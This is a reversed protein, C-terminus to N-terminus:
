RLILEHEAGEHYLLHRTRGATSAAWRGTGVIGLAVVALGCGLMIGWIAHTTFRAGSMSALLSGSIAVGLSVGVQRSTSAIAAAVGAQARPMGSTATYTIPANVVGFGLGVIAYAALLQALPTHPSMDLLLAAGVAIAAGSVILPIRDGRAAVLRGSLPSSIGAVAAMPLTLLGAVIASYGRVNQLYLTNVFLFIGLAAFSAVATLTASSFPASRFFRLDILPEARRSEVIVLAAAAIASVAFLTLTLASHWGRTPAEIIAYTLSGLLAIVLVQGVPDIARARSARSEPVYFWTLALATLGIPINVWFVSRWGAAAVLAGGVVPGLAMSVGVVAGWIGIARAREGADRFTNVIIGMAVPNMMSGGLAQLMRFAVLWGLAPAVSCLLSGLTFRGLGIRFVRRRGLRDGLSGSMMLLMALVLVYGDVTWQLGSLSTHLDRRISPLAINVITSDLSVILLSMCCVALTLWRQEHPDTTNV